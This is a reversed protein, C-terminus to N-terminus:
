TLMFWILYNDEAETVRLIHLNTIIRNAPETIYDWHRVSMSVQNQQLPNCIQYVTQCSATFM